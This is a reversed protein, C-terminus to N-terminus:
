NGNGEAGIETDGTKESELENGKQCGLGADTYESTGANPGVAGVGVGPELSSSGIADTVTVLAARWTDTSTEHVSSNKPKKDNSIKRFARKSLSSVRATAKRMNTWLSNKRQVRDVNPFPTTFIKAPLPGWARPGLVKIQFPGVTRVDPGPARSEFIKAACTITPLSAHSYFGSLLCPSPDCSNFDNFLACRTRPTATLPGM